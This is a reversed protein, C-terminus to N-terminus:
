IRCSITDQLFNAKDELTRKSGMYEGWAHAEHAGLLEMEWRCYAGASIDAPKFGNPNIPFPEESFTFVRPHFMSPYDVNWLTPDTRGLMTINLVGESLIAIGMGNRRDVKGARLKESVAGRAIEVRKDDYVGSEHVPVELMTYFKVAFLNPVIVPELPTIVREVSVYDGIDGVGKLQSLLKKLEM